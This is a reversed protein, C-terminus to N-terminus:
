CKSLQNMPDDPADGASELARELAELAERYDVENTINVFPAATNMFSHYASFGWGWDM